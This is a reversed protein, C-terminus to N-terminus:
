NNQMMIQEAKAQEIQQKLNEILRKNHDCTIQLEAVRDDDKIQSRRGQTSAYSGSGYASTNDDGNNSNRKNGNKNQNTKVQKNLEKIQDRLEKIDKILLVNDNMSKQNDQKHIESEIEVRKKLSVM